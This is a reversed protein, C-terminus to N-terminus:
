LGGAWEYKLQVFVTPETTTAEIEFDWLGDGLYAAERVQISAGSGGPVSPYEAELSWQGTGGDLSLKFGEWQALDASLLVSGTVETDNGRFPFRLKFVGDKQMLRAPSGNLGNAPHGGTAYEVLNNLQDSDPDSSLQRGAFSVEAGLYRELWVEIPKGTEMTVVSTEKHTQAMRQWRVHGTKIYYAEDVSENGHAYSLGHGIADFSDGADRTRYVGFYPRFFIGEGNRRTYIGDAVSPPAVEVWKGETSVWKLAYRGGGYNYSIVPSDSAFAGVRATTEVDAEVSRDVVVTANWITLPLAGTPTGDVRFFTDGGDDSYAYLVHSAGNWTRAPDTQATAAITAVAHMRNSADFFLRVKPQQYWGGVGGSPHWFLPPSEDGAGRPFAEHSSLGGIWRWTRTGADYRAVAGGINGPDSGYPYPPTVSIRMRFALYLVGKADNFYEPYTIAHGPPCRSDGASYQTFGSIDYPADSIYYVWDQNHMDGTVHLYGEEDMGISAMVHYPDNQIGTRVVMESLNGEADRKGVKLEADPYEGEIWATYLVGLASACKSSAGANLDGGLGILAEEVPVGSGETALIWASLGVWILM